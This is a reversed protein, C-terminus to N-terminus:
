NQQSSSKEKSTTAEPASPVSIEKYPDLEMMAAGGNIVKGWGWSMGFTQGGFVIVKLCGAEFCSNPSKNM